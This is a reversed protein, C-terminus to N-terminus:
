KPQEPELRFSGSKNQLTGFFMAECNPQNSGFYQITQPEM